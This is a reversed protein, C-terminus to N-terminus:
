DIPNGPQATAMLIGLLIVVLIALAALTALVLTVADRKAGSLYLMVARGGFLLGTTAASLVFLLLVAMGVLMEPANDFMREANTMVWVVGAVYLAIGVAQALAITYLRSKLM